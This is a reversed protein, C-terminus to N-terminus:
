KGAEMDMFTVAVAYANWVDASFGYFWGPDKKTGKGFNPKGYAFREVLAAKIGKDNRGYTNSCLHRYEQHRFVFSVPVGAVRFKEDFRGIWECTLFVESNAQAPNSIREIVASCSEWQTKWSILGLGETALRWFLNENRFKGAWLPKADSTRVLCIGSEYTGPDIAILYDKM